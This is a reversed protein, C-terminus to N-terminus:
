ENLLKSIGRAELVNRLARLYVQQDKDSFAANLYAEAEEDDRLSDILAEHYDILRKNKM